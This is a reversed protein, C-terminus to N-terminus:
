VNGLRYLHLGNHIMIGGGDSRPPTALQDVPNTQIMQAKGKDIWSPGVVTWSDSVVTKIPVHPQRVVNPERAVAPQQPLPKWAKNHQVSKPKPPHKKLPCDHGSQLCTAYYLPQWEYEIVRNFKRGM